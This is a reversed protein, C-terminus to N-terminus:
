NRSEENKETKAKRAKSLDYFLDAFNEEKNKSQKKKLNENRLKEELVKKDSIM